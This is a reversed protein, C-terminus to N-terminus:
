IVKGIVKYNSSSLVTSEIAIEKMVEKKGLYNAHIFYVEEGDNLIFGTHFNKNFYPM